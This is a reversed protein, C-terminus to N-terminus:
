IPETTTGTWVGDAGKVMEIVPTPGVGMDGAPPQIANAQTIFEGGITIAKAEPARIRFTVRHDSAIEPSVIPPPGAARGRGQAAGAVPAAPPSQALSVSSMLLTALVSGVVTLWGDRQM